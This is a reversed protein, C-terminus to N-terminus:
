RVAKALQPVTVSISPRPSPLQGTFRCFGPSQHVAGDDDILLGDSGTQDLLAFGDGLGSLFLAKALVEAQWAEAAIVSAAATGGRAPLGTAPDILHHRRDSSPGWARRTRSSTAVAGGRLGVTAAPRRWLPHEIVVRWSRGAPPEGEVRLDGGLNACVGAAGQRLLEAVVLDAAYGKGIGGPDFGVGGPLTVTSAVPDVAIARWAHRQRPPAGPLRPNSGPGFAAGPATGPGSAPTTPGAQDALLEFSRDYGAQLVAGLVTPDYRGNTIRAGELARQVLALTERSVRLPEARHANLRSIESGAKFRSWRLELEEILERAAELLTVPGGAVIVHVDTGMARFRTVGEM